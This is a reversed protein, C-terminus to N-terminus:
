IGSAIVKQRPAHAFDQAGWPQRSFTADAPRTAGPTPRRRRWFRGRLRAAPRLGGRRPKLRWRRQM